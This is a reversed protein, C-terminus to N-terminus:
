ARRVGFHVHTYHNGAQASEYRWLMQFRYGDHTSESIGSGTWPIGFARALAAAVRDGNAAGIQNTGARIDPGVGFDAAWKFDPPGAHDSASGLHTHNHNDIDNQAPTKTIGAAAAVPIAVTDIINKPTGGIVGGATGPASATGTLPDPAAGPSFPGSTPAIGGPVTTSVRDASEKLPVRPRTLKVTLHSPKVLDASVTDVLWDGDAPGVDSLSVVSGPPVSWAEVAIQLDVQSVRKGVDIDFDLQAVGATGNNVSLRSESALLRKDHLFYLIDGVVFCRYNVERAMRQFMTWSDEPTHPQGRHFTKAKGSTTTGLNAVDVGLGFAAGDIGGTHLFAAVIRKSEDETPGYNSAGGSAKGAGSGQVAQALGYLPTGAYSPNTTIKHLREYFAKTALVRDTRDFNYGGEPTQQFLGVSSGSGGPNNIATSETIVTMVAIVLEATTPRPTTYDQIITKLVVNLNDIQQTAAPKGKITIQKHSLGYDRVQSGTLPAATAGHQAITAVGGGGPDTPAYLRVGPLKGGAKTKESLAWRIVGVASITGQKWAKYATRRRLEAVVADEFELQLVYGQKKVRVLEFVFGGLRIRCRQQLLGSNLLVLHPDHVKLTVVSAGTITSDVTAALIRQEIAIKLWASGLSLGALGSASPPIWPADAPLGLKVTHTRNKAGPLKYPIRTVTSPDATVVPLGTLPDIPAFPSATM